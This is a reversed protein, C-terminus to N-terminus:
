HGGSLWTTLARGNPPHFGFDRYLPEGEESAHLDVREVGRGRFWDLTAAVVVRAHGQRRYRPDTAVSLIYGTVGVLNSPSPLRQQVVGVSCAGLRGPEDPADTVFAQLAGDQDALADRFAEICPKRWSDDLTPSVAAIMVGRLRTLEEADEVSGRRAVIGM